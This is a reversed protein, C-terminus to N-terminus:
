YGRERDVLREMPRGACYNGFDELFQEVIRGVTYGLTMNGSCHPTILLRPCDWIPDDAPIPEREFVDLAAGALHGGQMLELLAAQDIASGRGVNVIYADGPLLMLRRRDMLGATERTGPLAMVLLDTEPLADDLASIPLVRDFDGGPHRGSRNLGVISAPGFARLRHAAEAGINGTGLLTVRSGRISRIPLQREWRRQSVIGAYEQRHRMLELTVMVIHEAITVGYAGSSNTLMADPSGYVERPLYPEAGASPVCLWKLAKAAGVLALSGTFLLEAGAADALADAESDFFRAEFGHARAAAEIAARHADTLQAIDTVITRM